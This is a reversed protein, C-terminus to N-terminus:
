KDDKKEDDKKKEENKPKEINETVKKSAKGIESNIKHDLSAIGRELKAKHRNIFANPDMNPNISQSQNLYGAEVKMTAKTSKLNSVNKMQHNASILKKLSAAVVVGDREEDKDDKKQKDEIKKKEKEREAVEAEQIQKEIDILTKNLEDVKEKKMEPTMSEEQLKEKQKLINEKAKELAEIIPNKNPTFKLSKNEENNKIQEQEKNNKNNNNLMATIGYNQRNGISSINM